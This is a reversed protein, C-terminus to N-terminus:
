EFWVYDCLVELIGSLTEDCGLVSAYFFFCLYSRPGNISFLPWQSVFLCVFCVYRGFATNGDKVFIIQMGLRKYILILFFFPPLMYHAPTRVGHNRSGNSTPSRGYESHFSLPAILRTMATSSGDASSSPFSRSFGWWGLRVLHMEVHTETERHWVVCRSRGPEEDYSRMATTSLPTFSLEAFQWFVSNDVSFSDQSSVASELPDM